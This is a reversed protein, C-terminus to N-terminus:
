PRGHNPHFGLKKQARLRALSAATVCSFAGINIRRGDSNIYATYRGNRRQSVGTAGTSNDKRRKANKQNQSKTVIRLNEWRNDTRDGNIHDVEGEPWYGLKLAAAVRHATLTTGMAAGKLYGSHHINTFVRRRRSLSYLYGTEPDYRIKKRLDEVTPIGRHTM